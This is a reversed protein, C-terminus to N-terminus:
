KTTYNINDNVKFFLNTQIKKRKNCLERQVTYLNFHVPIFLKDCFTCCFETNVLTWGFIFNKHFKPYPIILKRPFRTLKLFNASAFVYLFELSFANQLNLAFIKFPITHSRELNHRTQYFFVCIHRIRLPRCVCANQGLSLCEILEQSM